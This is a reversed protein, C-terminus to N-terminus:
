TREIERTALACLFLAAAFELAGRPSLGTRDSLSPAARLVIAALLALLGLPLSLQSVLRYIKPM